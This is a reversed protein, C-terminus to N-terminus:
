RERLLRRAHDDADDVTSNDTGPRAAVTLSPRMRSRCFDEIGELTVPTDILEVEKLTRVDRLKSLGADTVRTDSLFLSELAPLDRLHELGEDGVATRNLKL